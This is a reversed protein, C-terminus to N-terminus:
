AVDEILRMGDDLTGYTAAYAPTGSLWALFTAVREATIPHGIWIRDTLLREIAQFTSIRQLEATGGETFRPFILCGLRVAAEEWATHPPVLLRAEVGKTRYRPAHALDPRHSTLIDISGPKLSLPVPWPVITGGPAAVAVLDDALYDFGTGTLGATLTSKGSGSPGCLALAVGDRAVAAGHIHAIWEVNPHILELIAQWLGGVLVGDDRTRIREIGNNFLATEDPTVQRIEIRAQPRAGPTELHALLERIPAHLKNEVAFAITTRRITCTWEAAWQAPPSTHDGDAEAYIEPISARIQTERSALLGQMRWQALIADIDNRARSISIGWVQAFESALEEGAHGAEILGWVHHATDNYAFLRSASSDLLLLGGEVPFRYVSASPRIYYKSNQPHESKSVAV